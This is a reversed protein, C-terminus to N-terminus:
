HKDPAQEENDAGHLRLTNTRTCISGQNCGRIVACSWLLVPVASGWVQGRPVALGGKTDGPLRQPCRPAPPWLGVNEAPSKSQPPVLSEKQQKLAQCLPCSLGLFLFISLGYKM